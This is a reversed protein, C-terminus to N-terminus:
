KRELIVVGVGHFYLYKGTPSFRPISGEYELLFPTDGFKNAFWINPGKTKQQIWYILEGKSNVDLGRTGEPAPYATTEGTKIDIRKILRNSKDLFYFGESVILVNSDDVPVPINDIVRQLKGDADYISCQWKETHSNKRIYYVYNGDRALKNACPSTLSRHEDKRILIRWGQLNKLLSSALQSRDVGVVLITSNTLSPCISANYKTVDIGTRWKRGTKVDYAM